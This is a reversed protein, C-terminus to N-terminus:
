LGNQTIMKLEEKELDIDCLKKLYIENTLTNKVEFEHDATVQIKDGDVTEIEFIPEPERIIPQYIERADGNELIANITEGNDVRNILDVVNIWGLSTLIETNDSFCSLSVLQAGKRIKGKALKNTSKRGSGSTIVDSQTNWMDLMKVAGPTENGIGEIFSGRPRMVDACFGYGGESKLILAQKRLAELIGDMSDQNTGEFGDVYCNLMTTGKLSTGANSLIRGGPVFKFDELISIFKEKWYGKDKEVSAIAEAVREQMGNVDEEGSRFTQEFIEKSFENTFKTEKTKKM